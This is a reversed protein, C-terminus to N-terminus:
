KNKRHRLPQSLVGREKLKLYVYLAIELLIGGFLYGGLVDTAWHDGLYIRSPGVLVVFAAPIILFLYHWWRDRKFLIIGFSFLLGFYTLYSMVHGSPFSQGGVKYLIDVLNSTPRPRAVILKILGNLLSSVTCVALVFIAELRLRVLWFIVATIIIMATFLIPQFGIWSVAYMTDRLWASQNEQFEQTIVVDIGLVPHIHVWWALLGFLALQVIYIIMLITIRKASRYWPLRTRQVEQEAKGVTEGVAGQINDGIQQPLSEDGSHRPSDMTDDHGREDSEARREETDRKQM